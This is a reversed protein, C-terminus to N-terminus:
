QQNAWNYTIKAPETFQQAQCLHLSEERGWMLPWDIYYQTVQSTSHNQSKNTYDSQTFNWGENATLEPSMSIRIEWLWKNSFFEWKNLRMCNRSMLLQAWSFQSTFLSNWFTIRNLKDDLFTNYKERKSTKFAIMSTHMKITWTKVQLVLSSRIETVGSASEAAPLNIWSPQQPSWKGTKYSFFCDTLM